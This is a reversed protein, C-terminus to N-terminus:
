TNHERKGNVHDNINEGLWHTDAASSKHYHYAQLYKTTLAKLPAKILLNETVQLQTTNDSNFSSNEM